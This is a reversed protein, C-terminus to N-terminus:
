SLATVDVLNGVLFPQTRQGRFARDGGIDAEVAGRGAQM